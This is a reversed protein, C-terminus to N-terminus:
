DCELGLRHFYNTVQDDKNETVNVALGRFYNTVKDDKNETVNVALGRFNTSDVAEVFDAEFM